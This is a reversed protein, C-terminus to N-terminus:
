ISLPVAGSVLKEASLGVSGAVCVYIPEVSIVRSDCDKAFSILLGEAATVGETEAFPCVTVCVFGADGEEECTCVTGAVCFGVTGAM